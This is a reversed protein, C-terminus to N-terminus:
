RAGARHGLLRPRARDRTRHVGPPPEIGSSGLRYGAFCGGPHGGGLHGRRRLRPRVFEAPPRVLGTRRECHRGDPERHLQRDPQVPVDLYAGRVALHRGVRAPIRYGRLPRPCCRVVRHRHRQWRRQERIEALGHPRPRHLLLCRGARGRAAVHPRHPGHRLGEGFVYIGIGWIFSTVLAPKLTRRFLLGIGIGIEVLGFVAVWMTAEHSLFNAMHNITSGLLEPQGVAMPRIVTSVFEPKFLNPQFKLLGDIIWLVGLAVQLSRQNVHLREAISRPSDSSDTRPEM